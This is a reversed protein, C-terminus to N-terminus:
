QHVEVTFPIRQVEAPPAGSKNSAGTVGDFVLDYNGSQVNGGPIAVHVAKNALEGNVPFSLVTKGSPGVLRGTYSQYAVAPTFDFDLAFTENAGVTIQTGGGEGRTAGQLHYSSGYVQAAGGPQRLAPITVFNQFIVIAALAVVAPVAIVPRLWSFWGPKEVPKTHPVEQEQPKEELIMRSATMFATLHQVDNACEACDFYHEEFEDRLDGPLEGLVYKEAAQLRAVDSHEM